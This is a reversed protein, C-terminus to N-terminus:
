LINAACESQHNHISAGSTMHEGIPQCEERVLGDVIESHFHPVVRVSRDQAASCGDGGEVPLAEETAIDKM